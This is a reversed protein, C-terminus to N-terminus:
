IIWRVISPPSTIVVAARVIVSVPVVMMTPIVTAVVAFPLMSQSPSGLIRKIKSGGAKSGAPYM